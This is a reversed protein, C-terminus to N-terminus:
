LSGLSVSFFSHSLSVRPGGWRTWSQHRCPSTRRDWSNGPRSPRSHQSRNSSSNSNNSSNNTSSSTTSTTTTTTTPRNAPRWSAAWRSATSALPPRATRPPPWPPCRFHCFLINIGAYSKQLFIRDILYSQVCFWNQVHNSPMKSSHVGFTKYNKKCSCRLFTKVVVRLM